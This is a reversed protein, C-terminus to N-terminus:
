EGTLQPDSCSRPKQATPMLGPASLHIKRALRKLEKDGQMCQRL